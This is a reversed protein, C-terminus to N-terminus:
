VIPTAAPPVAFVQLKVNAGPVVSYLQAIVPRVPPEITPAVAIAAFRIPFEVVVVATGRFNIPAISAGVASTTVLPFM